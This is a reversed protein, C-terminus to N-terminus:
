MLPCREEPSVKKHRMKGNINYIISQHPSVELTPCKQQTGQDSAESYICTTLVESFLSAYPLMDYPHTDLQIDACKLLSTLLEEDKNPFLDHLVSTFDKKKILGNKETETDHKVLRMALQCAM